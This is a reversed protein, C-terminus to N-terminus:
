SCAAIATAFSRVQFEFNGTVRDLNSLFVVWGGSSQLDIIKVDGIVERLAGLEFHAAADLTYLLNGDIKALRQNIGRAEDNMLPKDTFDVNGATRAHTALSVRPVARAICSYSSPAEILCHRVRLWPANKFILKLPRISSTTAPVCSTGLTVDTLRLSQSSAQGFARFM